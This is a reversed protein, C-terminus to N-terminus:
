LKSYDKIIVENCTSKMNWIFYYIFFKYLCINKLDSISVSFHKATYELWVGATTLYDNTHPIHTILKWVVNLLPLQQQQSPAVTNVCKGLASLLEHKSKGTIFYIFCVHFITVNLSPQM